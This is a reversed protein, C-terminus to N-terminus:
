ESEEVIRASFRWRSLLSSVYQSAIRDHDPCLHIYVGTKEDRRCGCPERCIGERKSM